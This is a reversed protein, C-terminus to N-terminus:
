GLALREDDSYGTEGDQLERTPVPAVWYGNEDVYWGIDRWDQYSRQM